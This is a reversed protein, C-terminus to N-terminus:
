KKCEFHRQFSTLVVSISRIAYSFKLVITNCSQYRRAKNFIFTQVLFEDCNPPVENLWMDESIGCSICLIIGLSCIGWSPAEMFVQNNFFQSVRIQSWNTVLFCTDNPIWRVQLKWWGEFICMIQHIFRIKFVMQHYNDLDFFRTQFIWFVIQQHNFFFVCRVSKTHSAYWGFIMNWSVHWIENKLFWTEYVNIVIKQIINQCRHIVSFAVAPNWM